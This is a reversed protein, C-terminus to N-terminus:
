RKKTAKTFFPFNISCTKSLHHYYKLCAYQVFLISFIFTVPQNARQYRFFILASSSYSDYSCWLIQIQSIQCKKILGSFIFAKTYRLGQTRKKASDLYTVNHIIYGIHSHLESIKHKSSKRISCKDETMLRYINVWKMYVLQTTINKLYEFNTKYILYVNNLQVEDKDIGNIKL